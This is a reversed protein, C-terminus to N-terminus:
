ASNTELLLSSQVLNHGSEAKRRASIHRLMVNLAKFHRFRPIKEASCEIFMDCHFLSFTFVCNAHSM